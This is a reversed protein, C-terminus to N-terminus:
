PGSIEEAPCGPSGLEGTRKMLLPVGTAFLVALWGALTLVLGLTVSAPAYRFRVVHTGAPVLVARFALDAPYIRTRRGDVAARWGDAYSDLLVLVADSRLVVSFAVERLGDEIWKLSEGEAPAGVATGGPWDEMVVTGGPAQGAAVRRVQELAQAQDRAPLVSHTLFARPLARPIPEWSFRGSNFDLPRGIFRVGMLALSAEPLGEFNLYTSFSARGTPSLGAHLSSYRSLHLPETLRIDRERWLTGLNPALCQVTLGALVPVSTFRGHSEELGTHVAAFAPPETGGCLPDLGNFYSSRAESAGRIFAFPSDASLFGNLLVFPDLCIAALPLFLLVKAAPRELFRSLVLLTLCVGYFLLWDLRLTAYIGDGMLGDVLFYVPFVASGAVFLGLERRREGPARRLRGAGAALLPVLFTWFVLRGQYPALLGGITLIKGFGRPFPDVLLLVALALIAAAALRRDRRAGFLGLAALGWLIPNMYLDSRPSFPNALTFSRQVSSDSLLKYSTCERLHWLVPMWHVATLAGAVALVAILWGMLRLRAARAEGPLRVGLFYLAAAATLLAATEPHGSYVMGAIMLSALWFPRRRGEAPKDLAWLLWGMWWVAWVDSLAMYKWAAPCFSWLIAGFTRPWRTLGFRELWLFYGFMGWLCGILLGLTYTWPNPELFFATLFPSFPYTQGGALAPVGCGVYPNWTPLHGERLSQAALAAFPYQVTIPSLDYWRYRSHLARPDGGDPIGTTAGLEYHFPVRHEGRFLFPGFGIVAAALLALVPLLRGLTAGPSPAPVSGPEERNTM